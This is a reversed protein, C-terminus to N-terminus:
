IQSAADAEWEQVFFTFAGVWGLIEQHSLSGLGPMLEDQEEWPIGDWACFGVFGSWQPIDPFLSNAGPDIM